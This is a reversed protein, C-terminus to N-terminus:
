EPLFEMVTKRGIEVNKNTKASAGSLGMLLCQLV